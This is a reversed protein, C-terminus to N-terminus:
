SLHKLVPLFILELAHVKSFHSDICIIREYGQFPPEM